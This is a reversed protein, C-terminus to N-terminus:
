AAKKLVDPPSSTTKRECIECSHNHDCDCLLVKAERTGPDNKLIKPYHAPNTMTVVEGAKADLIAECGQIEDHTLLLILQSSSAAAVRVVETKVFGSMM